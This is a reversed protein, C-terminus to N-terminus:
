LQTQKLRRANSQERQIVYLGAGITLCIGLGALGNPFERFMLWGILTAMPIEAYQIPALTATPAFKISWAMLLQALTGLCGVCCLLIIETGTPLMLSLSGIGISDGVFLLPVLIPVAILGSLAQVGVPDTKDSIQRTVLIFLAFLIAVILPLVAPWGVAIFSPQFVLITGLFGVCVAAFRHLGVHEGLFAWGLFLMFFPMVFVIAFADALPLYLLSTIMLFTGCLHLLTRTVILGLVRGSALIPRGTLWAYPLLLAGQIAFRALVIIGVPVSAGLFKSTGDALPAVFCFGLMLFIGLMPRDNNM